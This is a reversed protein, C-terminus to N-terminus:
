IYMTICLEVDWIEGGLVSCSCRLMLASSCCTNCTPCTFSRPSHSLCPSDYCVLLRYSRYALSFFSPVRAVCILHFETLLILCSSCRRRSTPWHPSHHCVLFASSVYTLSSFSALCALRILHLGTIGLVANRACIYTLPLSILRDICLLLPWSPSHPWIPLM